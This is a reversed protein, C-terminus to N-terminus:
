LNLKKKKGSEALDHRSVIRWEGDSLKLKYVTKCTAWPEGNRGATVIIANAGKIECTEIKEKDGYETPTGYSINDSYPYEGYCHQGWIEKLRALENQCFAHYATLGEPTSPDHNDSADADEEWKCMKAFYNRLVEEPTTM